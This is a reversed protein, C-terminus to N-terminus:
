VRPHRKVKRAAAMAHAVGGSECIRFGIYGGTPYAGPMDGVAKQDALHSFWITRSDLSLTFKGRTYDRAPDVWGLYVERPRGGRREPVDPVYGIERLAAEVERVPGRGRHVLEDFMGKVTSIDGDDPGVPDAPYTVQIELITPPFDRKNSTIFRDAGM